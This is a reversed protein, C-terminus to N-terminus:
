VSDDELPTNSQESKCAPLTYAQAPCGVGQATPVFDKPMCSNGFSYCDGDPGIAYTIETQCIKLSATCGIVEPENWCLNTEDLRSARVEVSCDHSATYAAATISAALVGLVLRVRVIDSPSM